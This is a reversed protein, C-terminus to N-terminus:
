LVRPITRLWFRQIRRTLLWVLVVPILGVLAFILYISLTDPGAAFVFLLASLVALVGAYWPLPISALRRGITALRTELRAPDVIRSALIGITLIIFTGLLSLTRAVNAADIADSAIRDSDSGLALRYLPVVTLLLLAAGTLRWVYQGAASPATEGVSDDTM